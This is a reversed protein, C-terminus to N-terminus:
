RCEIDVPILFIDVFLKIMNDSTLSFLLETCYWVYINLVICTLIGYFAWM